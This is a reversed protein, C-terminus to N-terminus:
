SWSDNATISFVTEDVGLKLRYVVSRRNRDMEEGSLRLFDDFAELGVSELFEQWDNFLWLSESKKIIKYRTVSTDIM